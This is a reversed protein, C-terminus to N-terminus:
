ARRFVLTFTAGSGQSSEVTISGGLQQMLKKALALGLGYGNADSHTRSQDARYFRDFIFPLDRKAIGQGTDSVSIAVSTRKARASITITSSQPSYKIANDVLISVVERLLADTAKVFLQGEVPEAQLRVKKARALPTFQRVVVGIAKEVSVKELTTAEAEMKALRLLSNSLQELHTVDELNERLIQQAATSLKPDLLNVELSTKLATIPTKLEHAADGVFRKQAEMATQIPRLTQGALVYSAIAVLLSLLVNVRLLQVAVLRKSYEIDALQIRRASQRGISLPYAQMEFQLRQEIREYELEIVSATRQYFLASATGSLLVIVATYTLALKLRASAFLANLM